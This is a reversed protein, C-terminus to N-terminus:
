DVYQWHYGGATKQKGRACASIDGKYLQKAEKVCNFIQGTEVCVVKKAKPNNSGKRTKSLVKGVRENRTGYDNNEKRTCWELNDVHNNSTNEDLHNVEPLNNPNPVFATAVLRHVSYWEQKKNKHLGVRLYGGKGSGFKMTKNTKLSRVRGLNSVQYLGTYDYLVGNKEIIIDKWVEQM